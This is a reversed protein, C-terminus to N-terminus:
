WFVKSFVNRGFFHLFTEVLNQLSIEVMLDRCFIKQCSKKEWFGGVFDSSFVIGFYRQLYNEVLSFRCYFRHWFSASSFDIGAFIESSFVRHFFVQLFIQM